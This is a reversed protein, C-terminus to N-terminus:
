QFLHLINAQYWDKLEPYHVTIRNNEYEAIHRPNFNRILMPPNSNLTLLTKDILLDRPLLRGSDDTVKDLPVNRRSLNDCLTQMRDYLDRELLSNEGKFAAMLLPLPFVTEMRGIRDILRSSFEKYDRMKQLNYDQLKMGEGYKVTAEMKAEPHKYAFRPYQHFIFRQETYYTVKKILGRFNNPYVIFPADPVKSFSINIPTIYVDVGTEVGLRHLLNLMSWNVNRLRGTKTRGSINKGTNRDREYEIYVLLDHKPKEASFMEEKLYAPFVTKMYDSTSLFTDAYGKRQLLTDERLFKFGGFYKLTEDFKSVFLNQGVAIIIHRNIFDHHIPQHIAYDYLSRHRPVLVEVANPNASIEQHQRFGSFNVESFAFADGKLLMEDKDTETREFLGNIIYHRLKLADKGTDLHHEIYPFYEAAPQLITKTNM